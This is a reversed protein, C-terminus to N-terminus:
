KAGGTLFNVPPPSLLNSGDSLILMDWFKTWEENSKDGSACISIIRKIALVMYQIGLELDKKIDKIKQANIKAGHVASSRYGYLNRFLEAIEFREDASKGLLFAARIKIKFSLENKKDDNIFLSEIAIGLEIAKNVTDKRLIAANLRELPILLRKISNDGLSLFNKTLLSIETDDLTLEQTKINILDFEELSLGESSSLWCYLWPEPQWWFSIPRPSAPGCLTLLYCLSKLKEIIDRKDEMSMWKNKPTPLSYVLAATPKIKGDHNFATSKNERARLMEIPMMVPHWFDTSVSSPTYYAKNYSDPIENFPLLRLEEKFVIERKVSIGNIALVFYGSIEECELFKIVAFLTEEESFKEAYRILSLAVMKHIGDSPPMQMDYFILGIESLFNFAEETKLFLELSNYDRKRMEEIFSEKDM